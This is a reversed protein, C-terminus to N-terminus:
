GFPNVSDHGLGPQRDEYGTRVSANSELNTALQSEGSV